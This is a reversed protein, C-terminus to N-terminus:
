EQEIDIGGKRFMEQVEEAEIEGILFLEAACEQCAGDENVTSARVEDLCIECKVRAPGTRKTM